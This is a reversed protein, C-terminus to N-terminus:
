AKTTIQQYLKYKKNKIV